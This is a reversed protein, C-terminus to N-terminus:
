MKLNMMRCVAVSRLYVGQHGGASKDLTNICHFIKMYYICECTVVLSWM